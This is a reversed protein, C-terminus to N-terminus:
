LLRGGNGLRRFRSGAFLLRHCNVNQDCVVRRGRFPRPLIAATKLSKCLSGDLLHIRGYAIGYPVHRIREKRKPKDTNVLDSPRTEHASVIRVLGAADSIREHGRTRPKGTRGVVTARDARDRFGVRHRVFNPVVHPCSVGRRYIWFLYGRARLVVGIRGAVVELRRALAVVCYHCVTEVSKAVVVFPHRIEGGWINCIKAHLDPVRRM